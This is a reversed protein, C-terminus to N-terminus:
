WSKSRREVEEQMFYEGRDIEGEAEEIERNYREISIREQTEKLALLKEIMEEDHLNALWEFLELKKVEAASMLM